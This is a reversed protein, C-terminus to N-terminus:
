SEMMDKEKQVYGATIILEMLGGTDSRCSSSAVSTVKRDKWLDSRGEEKLNNVRSRHFKHFKIKSPQQM